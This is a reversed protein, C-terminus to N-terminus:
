SRLEMDGFRRDHRSERPRQEHARNPRYNETQKCIAVATAYREYGIDYEERDDFQEATKRRVIRNKQHQADEITDAHTAFPAYARRQHHFGRRAPPAAHQAANQLVSVRDSIEQRSQRVSKGKRCPTPPRHEPEASNGREQSEVNGGFHRFGLSPAVM